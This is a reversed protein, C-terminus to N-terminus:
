RNGGILASHLVCPDYRWVDQLGLVLACFESCTLRLSDEPVGWSLYSAVLRWDYENGQLLKSRSAAIKPSLGDLRVFDWRSPDLTIRKFRVGGIEGARSPSWSPLAEAAVSSACWLAGDVPQCHGDPMYQDVGDEPEFVIESHSYPGRLRWRIARNAIGQIGPRTSKYSALLVTNGSQPRLLCSTSRPM